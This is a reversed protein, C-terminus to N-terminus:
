TRNIEVTNELRKHQKNQETYANETERKQKKWSGAGGVKQGKGRGGVELRWGAVQLRWRRLLLIDERV